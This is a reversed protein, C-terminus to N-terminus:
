PMLGLRPETFGKGWRDPDGCFCGPRSRGGVGRITSAAADILLETPTTDGIDFLRHLLTTVGVSSVMTTYPVVAPAHDDLDPVYGEAAQARRAEPDLTEARAHPFSIRDRCILCPAGPAILTVRANVQLDGDPNPSVLVGLDIIPVLHYYALRNLTIRSSHNDTCGFVVDCTALADEAASSRVNLQLADHATGLGIDENLRAMVEVKPRGLDRVGSGYGRTPTAETVVDDDISVVRGAGLRFVLEHVASGTGGAGVIGISLERLARRGEAGYARDQRDFTPNADVRGSSLRLKPVPGAVRIPEPDRPRGRTTRRGVVHMRGADGAIVISAVTDIGTIRSIEASITRDVADDHASFATPVGPHTHVFVPIDGDDAIAIMQPAWGSSRLELRRRERLEYQGEDAWEITGVLITDRGSRVGRAVGASEVGLDFLPAADAVVPAAVVIRAM